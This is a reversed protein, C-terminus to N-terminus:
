EANPDQRWNKINVLVYTPYALISVTMVIGFMVKEQFLFTNMKIIDYFFWCLYRVAEIVKVVIDTLFEMSTVIYSKYLM